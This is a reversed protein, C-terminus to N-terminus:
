DRGSERGIANAVIGRKTGRREHRAPRLADRAETPRRPQNKAFRAYRRSPTADRFAVDVLVPRRRLQGPERQGRARRSSRTRSAAASASRPKRDASPGSGPSVRGFPDDSVFRRCRRTVRRCARRHVLQVGPMDRVLFPRGLCMLEDRREQVLHTVSALALDSLSNFQLDSTSRCPGRRLVALVTAATLLSACKPARAAVGRASRPAPLKAIHRRCAPGRAGTAPVLLLVPGPFTGPARGRHAVISGMAVSVVSTSCAAAVSLESM